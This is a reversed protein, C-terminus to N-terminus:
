MFISYYSSLHLSKSTGPEEALIGGLSTNPEPRVVTLVSTLQNFFLEQGDLVIREWFLPLPADESPLDRLVVTGDPGVHKGERALMWAVTRRQFPLLTPILADPQLSEDTAGRLPVPAPGLISLFYPITVDGAEQIVDTPWKTYADCLLAMMRRQLGDVFNIKRQTPKGSLPEYINPIALSVSFSARLRFPMERLADYSGQPLIHLELDTEVKARGISQFTLCAVLFDEHAEADQIGYHELEQTPINDPWDIQPLLFLWRDSAADWSPVIPPVPYSGVIALHRGRYRGPHFSGLNMTAPVSANDRLEEVLSVVDQEEQLWGFEAASANDVEEAEHSKTYSIDVSWKFAPLFSCTPSFMYGRAEEPANTWFYPYVRRDEVHVKRRKGTRGSTSRLQRKEGARHNGENEIVSPEGEDKNSQVLSILAHINLAPRFPRDAPTRGEHRVVGPWYHPAPRRLSELHPIVLPPGSVM